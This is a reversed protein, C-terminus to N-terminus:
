PLDDTIPAWNVGNETSRWVGGQASGVYITQNSTGNYRPDFAIAAVRGAVAVRPLGFTQGDRIPMPGLPDWVAQDAAFVTTNTARLSTNRLGREERELEAVAFSRAGRPISALPYARQESFWEARRSGEGEGESEAPSETRLWFAGNATPISSSLDGVFVLPCSLAIGFLVLSRIWHNASFRMGETEPGAKIRHFVRRRMRLLADPLRADLGDC